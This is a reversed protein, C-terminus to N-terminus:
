AVPPWGLKTFKFKKFDTIIVCCALSIECSNMCINVALLWSFHRGFNKFHGFNRHKLAISYRIISAVLFTHSIDICRVWVSIM